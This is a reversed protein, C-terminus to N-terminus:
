QQQNISYWLLLVLVVVIVDFCSVINEAHAKKHKKQELIFAIPKGFLMIPVCIVAILVLIMEIISQFYEKFFSFFILRTM